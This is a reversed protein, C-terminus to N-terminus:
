GTRALEKTLRSNAAHWHGANNKPGQTDCSESVFIALPDRCMCDDDVDPIITWAILCILSARLLITLFQSM